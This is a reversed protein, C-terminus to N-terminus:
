RRTAAHERSGTKKESHQALLLYCDALNELETRVSQREEARAKARLQAAQQRYQEANM